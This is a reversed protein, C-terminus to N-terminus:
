EARHQRLLELFTQMDKPLPADFKVRQETTPHTFELTWAHLACRTIV